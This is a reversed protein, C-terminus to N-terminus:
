GNKDGTMKFVADALKKRLEINEDGLERIKSELTDIREWLKAAQSLEVDADTPKGAADKKAERHNNIMALVIPTITSVCVTTIATIVLQTHTIGTGTSEPAQALLTLIDIM